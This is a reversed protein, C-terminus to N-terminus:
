AISYQIRFYSWICQSPALTFEALAGDGMAACMGTALMGVAAFEAALGMDDNILM